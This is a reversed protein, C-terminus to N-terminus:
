GRQGWGPMPFALKGEANAAPLVPVPKGGLNQVAASIQDPNQGKADFHIAGGIMVRKELKTERLAAALAEPKTSGARKHADACILVGEFCFGANIDFSEQPYQKYFDTRLRQALEQKPDMWPVNTICYDGYKGLVKLFQLDYMGPSGPSIIGMPEYRQKVMERVMLIADNLRTVVMHLDAGAAKAKAVEISLDKAQPDYSIKDLIKFPLKGADAYSDIAKLMSQGFTDNVHMLVATKPATGAAQFIDGFRALGNNALLVSTPFNRFIFKFGQETISPESGIDIVFPIGHQEAVQAIALTAGSEFAGLLIHAGDRILKEAQTRAVDPKSEFDANMLEVSYGMDKLIPLSLDRGRQCAQGILALFGSRPLLGGIKLPETQASAQGVRGATMAFTGTAAMALGLERRSLKGRM